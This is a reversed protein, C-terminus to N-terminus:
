TERLFRFEVVGGEGSGLAYMGCVQDEESGARGVLFVVRFNFAKFLKVNAWSDRLLQRRDTNFMGSHVYVIWDLGKGAAAGTPSSTSGGSTTVGGQPAVAASCLSPNHLLFSTDTPYAPLSPSVGQRYDDILDQAVISFFCVVKFYGSLYIARDSTAVLWSLVLFM